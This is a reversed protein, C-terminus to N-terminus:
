FNLMISKKRGLFRLFQVIFSFGVLSFSFLNNEMFKRLTSAIGAMFVTYLCAMITTLLGLIIFRRDHHGAITMGSKSGYGKRTMAGNGPETVM